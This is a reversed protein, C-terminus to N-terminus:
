AAIKKRMERRKRQYERGKIRRCELCSSKNSHVYSNEDSKEHGCPFHTKSLRTWNSPPPAPRPRREYTRIAHCNACVVECKKAEAIAAEWNKGLLAAVNAVKDGLHDFQLVRQDTEGCDKCRTEGVMELLLARWEERRVRDQAALRSKNAARYERMYEVSPM